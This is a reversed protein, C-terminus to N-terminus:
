FSFRILFSSRDSSLEIFISGFDITYQMIVWM